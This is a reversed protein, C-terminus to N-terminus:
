RIRLMGIHEAFRNPIASRLASADAPPRRGYVARIGNTTDLVEFVDVLGRLYEVFQDRGFWTNIGPEDRFTEVFVDREVYLTGGYRLLSVLREFAKRHNAFRHDARRIVVLAFAEEPLDSEDLTSPLVAAPLNRRKAQDVLAVDSELLVANCGPFKTTLAHAFTGDGCWIELLLDGKALTTRSAVQMASSEALATETDERAKEPEDLEPVRPNRYVFGCNRCVVVPQQIRQPEESATLRECDFSGCVACPVFFAKM